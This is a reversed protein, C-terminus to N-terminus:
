YLMFIVNGNKSEIGKKPNYNGIRLGEFGITDFMKINNIPHLKKDVEIASFDAYLRDEKIRAKGQILQGKKISIGSIITPELIVFTIPSGDFIKTSIIKGKVQKDSIVNEQSNQSSLNNNKSQANISFATILFIAIIIKKM